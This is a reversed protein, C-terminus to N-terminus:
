KKAERVIYVARGFGYFARITPSKRLIKVFTAISNEYKTQIPGDSDLDEFSIPDPKLDIKYLLKVHIKAYLSTAHGWLVYLGIGIAILAPITLLGFIFDSNM